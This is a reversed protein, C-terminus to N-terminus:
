ITRQTPLPAMPPMSPPPAVSVPQRLVPAGIPNMAFYLDMCARADPMASHANELTRGTARKLAAALKGEGYVNRSQLMTCYHDAQDWARREGENRYRAMAIAIIEKDFTSNHAVITSNKVLQFFLETVTIESIGVAKAYAQSIGHIETLKQPIEWGRPSVVVDLSALEEGTDKNALIVALQVLHPQTGHDRAVKRTFGTTETDYFSILNVQKEKRYNPNVAQRVSATSIHEMAREFVGPPFDTM